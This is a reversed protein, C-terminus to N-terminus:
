AVGRVGPYRRVVEEFAEVNGQADHVPHHDHETERFRKWRSSARWDGVLGAYWDGVLGAYWDGIRRASHGFPNMGVHRYFGDNIWQWDFAPNDSVFVRPAPFREVWTRFESFVLDHNDPLWLYESGPIGVESATTEHFEVRRRAAVERDLAAYFVRRTEYEVAGFETLHGLSPCPGVAECDVFILTM